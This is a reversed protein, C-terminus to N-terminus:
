TESMGRRKDNPIKDTQMDNELPFPCFGGNLMQVNVNQMPKYPGQGAFCYLGHHLPLLQGSSEPSSSSPGNQKGANQSHGVSTRRGRMYVCNWPWISEHKITSLALQQELNVFAPNKGTLDQQWSHPWSFVTYVYKYLISEPNIRFCHLEM